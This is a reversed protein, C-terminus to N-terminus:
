LLLTKYKYYSSANPFMTGAFRNWLVSTDRLCLWDYCRETSKYMFLPLYFKDILFKLRNFGFISDENIHDKRGRLTKFDRM